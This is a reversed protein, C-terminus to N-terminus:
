RAVTDAWKRDYSGAPLLRCAPHPNTPCSILVSLVPAATPTAPIGNPNPVTYVAVPAITNDNPNFYRRLVVRDDNCTFVLWASTDYVTMSAPGKLGSSECPPKITIEAFGAARFAFIYDQAAVGAAGCGLAFVLALLTRKM